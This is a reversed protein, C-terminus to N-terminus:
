RQVDPDGQNGGSPSPAIRDSREMILPIGTAPDVPVGVLTVRPFVFWALLFGAIFATICSLVAIPLDIGRGKGQSEGPEDDQPDVIVPFGGQEDRAMGASSPQPGAEVRVPEGGRNDQVRITGLRELRSGAWGFCGEEDSHPDFVWAVQDPSSFFNKHIFADHDSLFVGFGPHSHYWGVIREEPFKADKIKYVHEWTEQTFTVHTGAQAANEGAICATVRIDGDGRPGILVGCVEATLSARAHQRIRRVVDGDITVSTSPATAGKRKAM